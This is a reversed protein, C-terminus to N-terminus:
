VSSIIEFMPTVMAIISSGIITGLVVIISPELLKILQEIKINLENEYFKNATELSEELKGSEEGAKVMSIFLEPFIKVQELASGISSGKKIHNNVSSIDKYVYRNDVVHASIEIAEIIQVGSSILIMLSRSFRTTIILKNLMKSVPLKLKIKDINKQFWRNYIFLYYLLILMSIFVLTLVILNNRLFYSTNILIKSLLPPEIANSSFIIQFNPIIFLLIFIISISSLIILIIPYIMITILKSRLKYENDYYVSLSNMVRDLCGSIEGASITNTFFNSFSGTSQFAQTLSKGRQIQESIHTLSKKAISSSHEKVINLLKIIECGSDLLIAIERCMIRLEKSKIKTSKLYKANKIIKKIKFNQELHISSSYLKKM